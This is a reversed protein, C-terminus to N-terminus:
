AKRTIAGVGFMAADALMGRLQDSNQMREVNAMVSADVKDRQVSSMGDFAKSIRCAREIFYGMLGMPLVYKTPAFYGHQGSVRSGEWPGRGKCIMGVIVFPGLKAYSMLLTSSGIIDFEVSGSFYRNINNPLSDFNTRGIIDLPILHQEFKAIGGRNGLLYSRWVREAQTAAQDQQATYRTNPNLGKSHKLVRWSISTCFKQLWDEYEVQRVGELWPHFLKASFAREECSLLGECADCLWPKKLGDQVRRNINDTNRFHGTGSRDRLWRFVFAPLVHSDRLEAEEQCLACSGRIM